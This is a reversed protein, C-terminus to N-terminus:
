HPERSAMLEGYVRDVLKQEQERTLLPLLNAGAVFPLPGLGLRANEANFEAVTEDDWDCTMSLLDVEPAEPPTGGYYGWTAPRFAGYIDVTVTVPMDPCDHGQIVLCVEIEFQESM